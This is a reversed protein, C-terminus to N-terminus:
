SCNLYRSLSSQASCLPSLFKKTFSSLRQFDAQSVTYCLVIPVASYTQLATTSSTSIVMNITITMKAPKIAVTNQVKIVTGKNMEPFQSRWAHLLQRLCPPASRLPASVSRLRAASPAKCFSNAGLFDLNM